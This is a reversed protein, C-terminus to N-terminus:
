KKWQDEFYKLLCNKFKEINESKVMFGAAQPHGGYTELFSKCSTMAKVGDVDSPCRVTGHNKNKQKEFIFVPRHYKRCMRSAVAGLLILSWSTDGEFVIIEPLSDVRKEVQLCIKKVKEKKIEAKKILSKVMKKAKLLSTETLFIYIENSHEKNEASNLPAIVKQFLDQIDNSQFNTLEKFALLGTNQTYSLALLGQDVIKKNEGNLPMQDALTALAALELFKEPHDWKNEKTLLLEALKYVIGACAFDKFPYNDGEQKPDVVISAQPLKELVIHHDIVIVEFGMEEAEKIEEFNGIGCDLSIFLAPANKKLYKLASRNIGYGQKGRDPFYVSLVKGGLKEIVMQLIIVSSVGDIDADGYLIIKENNKIAKLIRLATKRLNKIEM